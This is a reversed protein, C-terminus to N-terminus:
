QASAAGELHYASISLHATVGKCLVFTDRTPKTVKISTASYFTNGGQCSQESFHFADSFEPMCEILHHEWWM